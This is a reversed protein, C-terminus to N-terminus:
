EDIRIECVLKEVTKIPRMRGKQRGTYKQERYRDEFRIVKILFAKDWFAGYYYNTTASGQPLPDLSSLEKILRTIIYRGKNSDIEAPISCFNYGGESFIAAIPLGFAEHEKENILCVAPKETQLQSFILERIERQSMPFYHGKKPQSDGM